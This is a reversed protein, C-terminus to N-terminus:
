SRSVSYCFLHCQSIWFMPYQIPFSCQIRWFSLLFPSTIIISAPHTNLTWRLTRQKQIHTFNEMTFPILHNNKFSVSSSYFVLGPNFACLHGIPKQCLHLLLETSSPQTAKEAFAAPAILHGRIFFLNQSSLSLSSSKSMDFAHEMFPFFSWIFRM